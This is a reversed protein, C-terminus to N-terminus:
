KKNMCVRRFMIKSVFTKSKGNPVINEHIPFFSRKENNQNNNEYIKEWQFQNCSHYCFLRPWQPHKQITADKTHLFKM